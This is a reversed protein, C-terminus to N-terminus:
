HGKKKDASSGISKKPEDKEVKKKKGKFMALAAEAANDDEKSARKKGRQATFSAKTYTDTIMKRIEAKLDAKILYEWVELPTTDAPTLLNAEMKKKCANYICEVASGGVLTKKKAGEVFEFRALNQVMQAAPGIVLDLLIEQVKPAQGDVVRAIERHFATIKNQVEVPAYKVVDESQYNTVLQLLTEPRVDKDRTPMLAVLGQAVRASARSSTVEALIAKEIKWNRDLALLNCHKRREVDKLMLATDAKEEQVYQKFTTRALHCGSLLEQDLVKKGGMTNEMKLVVEAIMYPLDGAELAMRKWTAALALRVHEAMSQVKVQLALSGYHVVV